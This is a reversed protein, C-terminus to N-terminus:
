FPGSSSSLSQHLLMPMLLLPTPPLPPVANKSCFRGLSRSPRSLSLLGLPSSSAIRLGVTHESFSIVKTTCVTHFNDLIDWKQSCHNKFSLQSWLLAGQNQKCILTMWDVCHWLLSFPIFSLILIKSPNAFVTHPYFKDVRCLYM